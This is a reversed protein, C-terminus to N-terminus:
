NRTKTGDAGERVTFYIIQADDADLIRRVANKRRIKKAVVARFGLAQITILPVMAVMAVVGFALSLVEGESRLGVCLGVTM